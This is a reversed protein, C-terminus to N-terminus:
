AFDRWGDVPYKSAASPRFNRQLDAMIYHGSLKVHDNAELIIEHTEVSPAGNRVAFRTRAWVPSGSRQRRNGLAHLRRNTRILSMARDGIKDSNRKSRAQLTLSQM